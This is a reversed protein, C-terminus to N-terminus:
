NEVIKEVTGTLTPNPYPEIEKIIYKENVGLYGDCQLDTTMIESLQQLSLGVVLDRDPKWLITNSM